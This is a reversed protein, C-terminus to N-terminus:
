SLAPSTLLVRELADNYGFSEVFRRRTNSCIGYLPSKRSTRLILPSTGTQDLLTGLLRKGAGQGRYESRVGVESIYFFPTDIPTDISQALQLMEPEPIRIKETNIKDLPDSWGWAFGAVQRRPGSSLALAFQAQSKKAVGRIMAATSQM